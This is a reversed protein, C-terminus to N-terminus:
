YIQVELINKDLLHIKKLDKGRECKRLLCPKVILQMIKHILKFLDEYLLPVMPNYTQCAFLLRQFHSAFVSFFELKAVALSDQVAEVM